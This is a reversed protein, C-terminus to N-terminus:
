SIQSENKTIKVSYHLSIKKGGDTIEAEAIRDNRLPEPGLRTQHIGSIGHLQDCRGPLPRAARLVWAPLLFTRYSPVDYQNRKNYSVGGGPSRAQLVLASYGRSVPGRYIVTCPSHTLDRGLPFHQPFPTWRLLM